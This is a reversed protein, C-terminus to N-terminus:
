RKKQTRQTWLVIAGAGVIIMMGLISRGNPLEGFMLFGTTIAVLLYWYRFPAVVSLDSGRYAEYTYSVGVYFLLSAVALLFWEGADPWKWEAVPTTWSLFIALIAGTLLSILSTSLLVVRNSVGAGQDANMGMTRSIVERLVQCASAGLPLLAVAQFVGGGPNVFLWAGGLAILSAGLLWWSFRERFHGFGILAVFVPAVMYIATVDAQPMFALAIILLPGIWSEALSRLMIHPRRIAGLSELEGRAAIVAFVIGGSMIARLTVIESVPLTTVVLKNCADNIALCTTAILLFRIGRRNAPATPM